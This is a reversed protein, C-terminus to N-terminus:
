QKKAVWRAVQTYKTNLAGDVRVEWRLPPGPLDEAMYFVMVTKPSQSGDPLARQPLTQRYVWCGHEGVPGKTLVWSLTTRSAPFVAHQRLAEWESRGERPKAPDEGDRQALHSILVDKETGGSFTTTMLGPAKGVEEACVQLVLGDVCMERLQTATFPSEICDPKAQDPKPSAVPVEDGLIIWSSAWTSATAAAKGDDPVASYSAPKPQIAAASPGASRDPASSCAAFHGALLAVAAVAVVRTWRITTNTRPILSLSM